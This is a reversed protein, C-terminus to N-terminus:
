QAGGETTEWTWSVSYGAREYAEVTQGIPLTLPLVALTELTEKERIIFHTTM